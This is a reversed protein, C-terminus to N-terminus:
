HAHDALSRCYPICSGSNHLNNDGEMLYRQDVVHSRAPMIGILVISLGEEKDFLEDVYGLTETARGDFWSRGPRM